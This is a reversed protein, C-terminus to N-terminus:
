DNLHREIGRVEDKGGSVCLDSTLSIVCNISDAHAPEYEVVQPVAATESGEKARDLRCFRIEICIRKSCCKRCAGRRYMEGTCTLAGVCSARCNEWAQLLHARGHVLRM